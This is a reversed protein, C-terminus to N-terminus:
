EVPEHLPKPVQTEESTPYQHNDLIVSDEPTVSSTPSSETSSEWLKLQDIHRKVIQGHTMEVSYTVLGLKKLVIGPIWKSSGSYNRVM